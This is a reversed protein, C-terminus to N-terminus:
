TGVLSTPPPRVPPPPKVPPGASAGGLAPPPPPPVKPKKEGQRWFGGEGFREWGWRLWGLLAQALWLAWALMALRYVLIPLSVVWPRPLEDAARDQYWILDFASSGNGGIQMRPDGLLGQQISLFLGALAFLTFSVLVIQVVNFWPGKLMTENRGRWGLLLLWGAIILSVSVHVQTLGLSLLFWHYWRLPTLTMQGLGFSVLLSVLLYSWFLVAPGLRPGGVFLTWRDRPMSIRVAPNVSAAGLATGAVRFLTDIGRMQRWVLSVSQRGPPIPVTVKQGDQRIPQLEGNIGVSQLQAGSPIRITHQAGRSSRLALDLTTDTARLGPGIVMRADDITLSQGDIGEPRTVRIAVSEGPWPRWEHVRRDQQQPAHVVPIGGIELHWVPSVDLRWVETWAVSSPARLEIQGREQLTSDWTMQTARPGMGLSVVGDTVPVGETTVSEGPLLPIRLVIPSGTPTLRVVRTTMRWQLGLNLQREVSVFPALQIPELRDAVTGGDGGTRVLQLTDAARGDELLGEVRWGAASSTVRYPKLQMPLSVSERNPLPGEMVIQHAGPGVYAWLVGDATRTLGSAPAGDIVVAHPVWQEAGGPLPVGTEAGAHVEFRIRLATLSAELSMRPSTACSPFCDPNQLLRQRLEDLMEGPPIEARVPPAAVLGLLLGLLVIPLGRSLGMRRVATGPHSADTIPMVCLALLALLIVRAFSLGLNVAPPVLVLHLRQTKEVPGRWHLSVTRWTWQPLGPGTQVVARPDPAYMLKGPSEPASDSVGAESVVVDQHNRGLVPLSEIVDSNFEKKDEPRAEAPMPARRLPDAMGIGGAGPVGPSELAPYIGERVQQVMFPLTIVILLLLALRHYACLWRKGRRDALARLLAEGVLVALWIWRPAGPEIWIMAMTVLALAGARWSWLRAFAMTIILVLFLDLLTWSSIWTTSVDDVGVAHLLRWGPPLNLQGSVQHFDHDWGVAPVDMAAEELRSDADMQMQTQRLEIGARGSTESRTIFQDAGNVSARGLAAPELMELRWSRKLTGAIRDQITYGGGDFDLWWTRELSLRDPAPDADGRLKEVMSMTEGQRVLYSPFVKWEDPLTTQQPDVETVGGIAVLRLHPRAEFVWVEEDGWPEDHRALKISAAPGEHRARFELTWRGPRVQVRLLGNSEVRAPLPSSMSMLVFSEPLVEGLVAERSSGSVQLDMRTTLVLPVDDTIRRHVTIDLRDEGGEEGSLKQLWLRGREDRLPYPVPRGGVQLDLLGTATPVQFLPPLQDWEFSGSIEHRGPSLEIGPLGENATLAAPRGDLLVRQPWHRQDGPLPVWARRHVLWSQSFRGAQQGLDLSLRAPWVCQRHDPSGQFFPCRAEDHGQLVWEIWPRLPEPVQEERRPEAAAPVASLASLLLCFRFLRNM